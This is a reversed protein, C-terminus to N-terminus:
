YAYIQIYTKKTLKLYLFLATCYNSTKSTNKQKRQWGRKKKKIWSEAKNKYMENCQPKGSTMVATTLKVLIFPSAPKCSQFAEFVNRATAEDTNLSLAQVFTSIHLIIQCYPKLLLLQPMTEWFTPLSVWPSETNQALQPKKASINLWSWRRAKIQPNSPLTPHPARTETWLATPITSCTHVWPSGGVRSAGGSWSPFLGAKGMHIWILIKLVSYHNKPTRKRWHM